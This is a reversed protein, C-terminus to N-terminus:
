ANISIPTISPPPTDTITPRPTISPLPTLEPLNTSRPVSTATPARGRTPTETPPVTWSPTLTITPAPTLTPPVTPSPNLPILLDSRVYGADVRRTTTDRDILFWPPTQSGDVIQLVCVESDRPLMEIFVGDLAPSERVNATDVRVFYTQCEPIPTLSPRRTPQILNLDTRREITATADRAAQSTPDLRPGNAIFDRFGNWLYYLGFVFAVGVLFVVWSPPGSKQGRYAM